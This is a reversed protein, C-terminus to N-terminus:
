TWDGLYDYKLSDQFLKVVRAQTKKEKQGVVSM